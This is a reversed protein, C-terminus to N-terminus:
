CATGSESACCDSLSPLPFILCSVSSHLSKGLLCAVAWVWDGRCPPGGSRQIATRRSCPPAISGFPKLVTLFRVLCHQLDHFSAAALLPVKIYGAWSSLTIGFSHTETHTNGEFEAAEACLNPHPGFPAARTAPCERRTAGTTLSGHLHQKREGQMKKETAVRRGGRRWGTNLCCLLIVCNRKGKSEVKRRQGTPYVPLGLLLYFALLFLIAPITSPWWILFLGCVSPPQSQLAQAASELLIFLFDWFFLARGCCVDGCANPGCSDGWHGWEWLDGRQAVLLFRLAKMCSLFRWDDRSIVYNKNSLCVYILFVM